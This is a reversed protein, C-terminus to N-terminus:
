RWIHTAGVAVTCGRRVTRGEGCSLTRIMAAIPHFQRCWKKTGRPCFMLAAYKMSYKFRILCCRTFLLPGSEGGETVTVKNPLLQKNVLLRLFKIVGGPTERALAIRQQTRPDFIDFTDTLKLVAVHEKVLNHCLNM